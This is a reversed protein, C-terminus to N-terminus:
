QNQRKKINTRQIFFTIFWLLATPLAAYWSLISFIASSLYVVPVVIMLLTIVTLGKNSSKIADTKKNM